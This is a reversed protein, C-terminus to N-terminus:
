SEELEKIKMTSFNYYDCNIENISNWNHNKCMKGCDRFPCSDNCETVGEEVELLFKKTAM